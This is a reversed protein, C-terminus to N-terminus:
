GGHALDGFLRQPGVAVESGAVAVGVVTVPGGIFRGVAEVDPLMDPGPRHHLVLVWPGYTRTM